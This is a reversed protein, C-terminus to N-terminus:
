FSPTASARTTPRGSPPSTRKPGPSRSTARRFVDGNADTAGPETGHNAQFTVIPAADPGCAYSLQTTTHPPWLESSRGATERYADKQLIQYSGECTVMSAGSGTGTTTGGSGGSGTGGGDDGCAFACLASGFAGAM